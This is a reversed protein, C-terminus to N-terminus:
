PASTNKPSSLSTTSQVAFRGLLFPYECCVSLSFFQRRSAPVHTSVTSWDQPRACGVLGRSRETIKKHDWPCYATLLGLVCTRVGNSGILAEGKM